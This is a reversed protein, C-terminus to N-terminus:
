MAERESHYAELWAKTDELSMPKGIGFGQAVDAGLQKLRAFQAPTEIGEAVTELKLVKALGIVAEIVQIQKQNELDRLLSRDIKLGNLNLMSLMSLSAYGTGFDDLDVRFGRDVLTRLTEVAKDNADSILTTELVEVRINQPSLQRMEAAMHLDQAFERSRLSTASANISIHLDDWGQNKLHSVAELGGIATAYDIAGVLGAEEALEIFEFPPLIGRKPHAWRALAEFGLVEGTEFSIKPQLFPIIENADIARELDQVLAHRRELGSRMPKAFAVAIGRGGRKAEYLAIDADAILRDANADDEHMYAFGASAGVNCTNNDILMPQRIKSIIGEALQMAHETRDKAQPVQSLIIFEDGGVRAVIDNRRIKSKMVEAARKLVEDGVPHGLVDNVEKFRDLDLHMVCQRDRDPASPSLRRELEHNLKKRNALGTLQDHHAAHELRDSISQLERNRHELDGAHSRATELLDKVRRLAPFFIFASEFALLAIAFALAYNEIKMLWDHRAKADSSFGKVAQDLHVLLPSFAASTIKDTLAQFEPHEAQMELIRQVDEIFGLSQAHLGTPTGFAYISAAAPFNSLDSVLQGHSTEFLHLSESLAAVFKTRQEPESLRKVLSAMRQSLMRQRGSLDIMEADSAGEAIAYKNFVHSGIIMALLLTIAICYKVWLWTVSNSM